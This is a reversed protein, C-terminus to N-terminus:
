TVPQSVERLWGRQHCLQFRNSIIDLAEIREHATNNLLFARADNDDSREREKLLTMTTRGGASGRGHRSQTLSDSRKKTGALYSLNGKQNGSENKGVLYTSAIWPREVCEGATNSLFLARAYKDRRERGAQSFSGDECSAAWPGNLRLALSRDLM